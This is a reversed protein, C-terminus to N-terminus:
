KKAAKRRREAWYATMRESVAKREEVSMERRRRGAQGASKSQRVPVASKKRSLSREAATSERQPAPGGLIQEAARLSKIESQLRDISGQRTAIAHTVSGMALQELIKDEWLQWYVDCAHPVSDTPNTLESLVAILMILSQSYDDLEGAGNNTIEQLYGYYRQDLRDLRQWTIRGPKSKNKCIALILHEPYFNM